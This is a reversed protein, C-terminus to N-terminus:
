EPTIGSSERLEPPLVDPLRAAGEGATGLGVSAGEGDSEGAGVKVWDGSCVGFCVGTAV